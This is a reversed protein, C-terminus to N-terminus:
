QLLTYVWYIHRNATNQNVGHFPLEFQRQEESHRGKNCLLMYVTGTPAPIVASLKLTFFTGFRQAINYLYFPMQGFELSRTNLFIQISSEEEELLSGAPLNRQFYTSVIDPM